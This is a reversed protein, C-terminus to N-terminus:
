MLIFDEESPLMWKSKKTDGHYKVGQFLYCKETNIGTDVEEFTDKFIKKIADEKSFYKMVPFHLNIMREEKVWHEFYENTVLRVGCTLVM